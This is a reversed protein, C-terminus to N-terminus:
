REGATQTSAQPKAPSEAPMRAAADQQKRKAAALQEARVAAQAKNVATLHANALAPVSGAVLTAALTAITVIRM